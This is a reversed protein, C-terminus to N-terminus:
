LLFSYDDKIVSEIKEIIVEAQNNIDKSLCNQCSLENQFLKKLEM